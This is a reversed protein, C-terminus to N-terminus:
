LPRSLPIVISPLTFGIALRCIPQWRILRSHAWISVICLIGCMPTTVYGATMPLGIGTGTTDGDAITWMKSDNYDPAKPIYVAVKNRCSSTSCLLLIVAFIWVFLKKM